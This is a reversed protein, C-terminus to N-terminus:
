KEKVPIWIESVYDESSNDGDTYYEFDYDPVLEYNAQPLWESYVRKWMDQIAKPMSGVCRFVAWTHAPITYEKFDATIERAEEKRDGIGYQYEKSGEKAPLCIGLRGCVKEALGERFYEEWFKPIGTENNQYNFTRTMLVVDFAEKKEIRYDMSSGGEMIIKIILRNFSKLSTGQKKVQVPTIGHFRKFAKAFSEPSDYGYKLAVDIVKSEKRLLEQGALSLRRNRIYEGVTLGTLLTFTRQFHHSSVYVEGAVEECELNGLLNEEMYEIARELTQIWDM